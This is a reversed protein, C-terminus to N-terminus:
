NIGQCSWFFVRTNNICFKTMRPHFDTRPHAAAKVEANNPSFSVITVLYIISIKSMFVSFYLKEVRSPHSSVFSNAFLLLIFKQRWVSCSLDLSSPGPPYKWCQLAISTSDWRRPCRGYGRNLMISEPVFRAGLRAINMKWLTKLGITWSIEITLFYLHDSVPIKSTSLKLFRQKLSELSMIVRPIWDGPLSIVMLELLLTVSCMTPVFTFIEWEAVFLPSWFSIKNM